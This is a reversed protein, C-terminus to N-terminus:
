ESLTKNKAQVAAPGRMTEVMQIQIEDGGNGVEQSHERTLLTVDHCHEINLSFLKNDGNHM